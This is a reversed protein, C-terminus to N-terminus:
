LAARMAAVVVSEDPLPEDVGNVFLRVQGVAQNILLDFGSIVSGGVDAWSNALASPWPDYSVDFLVARERIPEAFTLDAGGPVTSVIADPARLSRDQVGWGRVVLEIGLRSALTELPAAKSPTRAALDVRRAGLRAVAVLVSAATAGAGLIQVTELHHLGADQFSQIAGRVDTNYGSIATDSFLVTNAGGVLEVLDDRRDLLPLVDRKLPMTLSLGRWTADRSSVFQPLAAGDVEIAEYDWSLGLVDYAARHIAPSKSHKIPSGLVALRTRPADSM